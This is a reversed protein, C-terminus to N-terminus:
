GGPSELPEPREAAWRDWLVPLERDLWLHFDRMENLRGLRQPSADTLLELGQVALAMMAACHANRARSLEVWRGSRLRFQDSREGEVTRRVVWGSAVLSKLASSIAGRSAQLAEAIQTFTQEHPECILLWGVVRGAMRILGLGEFTVAVEEVFRLVDARVELHEGPDV